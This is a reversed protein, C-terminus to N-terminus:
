AVEPQSFTELFYQKKSPTAWEDLCRNAFVSDWNSRQVGREKWYVMFEMASLEIFDQPIGSGMLYTKTERSPEWDPHIVGLDTPIIKEQKKQERTFWNKLFTAYKQKRGQQTNKKEILWLCAKALQVDIDVLPYATQWSELYVETSVWRSTDFDFSLESDSPASGMENKNLKNTDTPTESTNESTNETYTQPNEAAQTAPNNGAQKSTDQKETQLTGAFLSALNRRLEEHDVKYFTKCPVGQKKEMLVGIKRLKKRATEQESRTLGTEDTWEGQTKYFWGAKKDSRKSWYIAQSLLLAGTIGAGLAVFPRQFAIPRDFLDSMDM